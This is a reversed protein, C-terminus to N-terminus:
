KNLLQLVPASTTYSHLVCIANDLVKALTDVVAILSSNILNNIHMKINYLEMPLASAKSSTESCLDTTSTAYFNPQKWHWFNASSYPLHIKVIVASLSNEFFSIESLYVSSISGSIESM